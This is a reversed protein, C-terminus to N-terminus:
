PAADVDAPSQHGPRRRGAPLHLGRRARGQKPVPQLPAGVVLFKDSMAVCKGFMSGFLDQASDLGTLKGASTWRNGKKRFLYVAGNGDAPAGVAIMDRGVAVSEGFGSYPQPQPASLLQTEVQPFTTGRAEFVYAAGVSKAGGVNQLVHGAVIIKGDIAISQAFGPKSLKSPALRQVLGWRDGNRRFLYAAGLQAENDAGVVLLDDHAALCIGFDAWDEGQARNSAPALLIGAVLTAIVLGVARKGTRPLLLSM